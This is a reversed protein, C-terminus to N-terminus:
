KETLKVFNRYFVKTCISWIYLEFWFTSYFMVIVWRYYCIFCIFTTLHHLNEYQRYNRQLDKFGIAKAAEVACNITFHSIVKGLLHVYITRLLEYFTSFHNLFLLIGNISNSRHMTVIGRHLWINLFLLHYKGMCNMNLVLFKVSLSIM